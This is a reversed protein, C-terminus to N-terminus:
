YIKKCKKRNEDSLKIGLAQAAHDNWDLRIGSTSIIRDELPENALLKIALQAATAGNDAYNSSISLLAGAKVYNPSFSFVPMKSRMFFLLINQTTASTYLEKDMIMLFADSESKAFSLSHELKNLNDIPILVLELDVSKAAKTMDAGLFTSSETTYIISLSRINPCFSKLVSFQEPFPVRLSVGYIDQNSSAALDFENLPDYVMTVIVPIGFSRSSIARFAETGVTILLDFTGSSIEGAIKDGKSLDSDLNFLKIRSGRVHRSLESSFSDAAQQYPDIQRSIVIAINPPTQASPNDQALSGLLLLLFPVIFTLLLRRAHFKLRKNSMEIGNTKQNKRLLSYASVQMGRISQAM